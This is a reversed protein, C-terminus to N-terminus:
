ARSIAYPSRQAARHSSGSYRNPSCPFSAGIRDRDACVSAFRRGGGAQSGRALELHVRPRDDHEIVEGFRPRASRRASLWQSANKHLINRFSRHYLENDLFVGCHCLERHRVLSKVWDAGGRRGVISERWTVGGSPEVVASQLGRQTFEQQEKRLACGYEVGTATRPSIYLSHCSASYFGRSNIDGFPHKLLSPRTYRIAHEPPHLEIVKQIRWATESADPCARRQLVQWHAPSFACKGFKCPSQHWMARKKDGHFESLAFLRILVATIAPQIRPGFKM